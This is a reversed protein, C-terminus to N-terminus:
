KKGCHYFLRIMKECYMKEWTLKRATEVANKSIFRYFEQDKSLRVIEECIADVDKPPRILANFGDTLLETAGVSESVLTPMGCSMAEFVALGWSQDINMFLFIDSNNFLDTYKKESVQGWIKINAELGGKKILSKIKAAYKESLKTSGIIDLSVQCGMKKLKYVAKVLTEYNRYPFFVGASLLRIKQGPMENHIQLTENVDVGCYYVFAERDLYKEVREKNKTVNVTVADVKKAAMRAIKKHIETKKSYIKDRSKGAMFCGPLDNIQWIIKKGSFLGLMLILFNLGNDHINVIDYSSSIKFFLQIDELKLSIYDMVKKILFAKENWVKPKEKLYIVNYKQFDPYTSQLDYYKTFVSFNIGQSCMYDCLRLVQKHTGGRINLENVVLAVKM